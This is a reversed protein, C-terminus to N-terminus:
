MFSFLSTSVLNSGRETRQQGVLMTGPKDLLLKLVAIVRM